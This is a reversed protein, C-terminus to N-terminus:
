ANGGSRWLRLTTGLRDRPGRVRLRLPVGSSRAITSVHTTGAPPSYARTRYKDIDLGSVLFATTTGCYYAELAGVWCSGLGDLADGHWSGPIVLEVGAAQLRRLDAESHAPQFRSWDAAEAWRPM